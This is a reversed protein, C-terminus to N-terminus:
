PSRLADRLTTLQIGAFLEWEKMTRRLPYLPPSSERPTTTYNRADTAGLLTGADRHAMVLGWFKDQTFTRANRLESPVGDTAGDVACKGDDRAPSSRPAAASASSSLEEEGTGVAVPETLGFINWGRTWLAQTMYVDELDSDMFQLSPDLEVAEPVRAHAATATLGQRHLRREALQESLSRAGTRLQHETGFEFFAEAPGFLLDSSAVAQLVYPTPEVPIPPADKPSRPSNLQPKETGDAGQSVLLSSTAVGHVKGVNAASTFWANEERLSRQDAAHWEQHASDGRGLTGGGAGTLRTEEMPELYRMDALCVSSRPVMAAELLRRKSSCQAAAGAAPAKTGAAAKLVTVAKTSHVLRNLQQRVAGRHARLWCYEFSRKRLAKDAASYYPTESTAEGCLRVAAAGSDRSPVRGITPESQPMHVIPQGPMPRRKEDLFLLEYVESATLSASLVAQPTSNTTPSRGGRLSVVRQGRPSAAAATAGDSRRVPSVQVTNLDAQMLTSPENGLVDRVADSAFLVHLASSASAPPPSDPSSALQRWDALTEVMTPWLWRPTVLWLVLEAESRAATLWSSVDAPLAALLRMGMKEPPPATTVVDTDGGTANERNRQRSTLTLSLPLFPKTDCVKAISAALATWAVRPTPRSSLVARDRAPTRLYLLRLTLDWNPLVLSGTRLFFVYSEGRYLQLTAYRGVYPFDFHRELTAAAGDGRLLGAHAASADALRTLPVVVRRRRLNDKWHFGYSADDWGSAFDPPECTIRSYRRTYPVGARDEPRLPFVVDSAKAFDLEAASSVGSVTVVDLTGVTVAVGRHAQRFLSGVTMACRAATLRLEHFGDDREELPSSSTSRQAQSSTPVASARRRITDVMEATIDTLTFPVAVFISGEQGYGRRAAHSVDYFTRSRQIYTAYGDDNMAKETEAAMRHLSRSGQMDYYSSIVGLPTVEVEAQTPVLYREVYAEQEAMITEPEDLVWNASLHGGAQGDDGYLGHLLEAGPLQLGAVKAGAGRQFSEGSDTLGAAAAIGAPLADYTHNVRVGRHEAYIRLLRVLEELSETYPAVGGGGGFSRADGEAGAGPVLSVTPTGPTSPHQMAKGGAKAGEGGDRM